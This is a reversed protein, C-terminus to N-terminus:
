SQEAAKEEVPKSQDDKKAVYHFLHGRHLLTEIEDKLTQCEDTNHGYDRHFRYYKRKDRRETPTRIKLHKLFYGRDKVEM